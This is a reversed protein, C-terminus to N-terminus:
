MAQTSACRRAIPTSRKMTANNATCRWAWIAGRRRLAARCAREAAAHQEGLALVAGLNSLTELDDPAKALIAHYTQEALAIQGAAVQTAGQRLLLLRDM